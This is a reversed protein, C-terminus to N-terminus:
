GASRREGRRLCRRRGRERPRAGALDIRGVQLVRRQVDVALQAPELEVLTHERLRAVRRMRQELAHLEEADGAVFRSSNKM